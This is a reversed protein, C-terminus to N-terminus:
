TPPTVRLTLGGVTRGPRVVRELVSLNPPHSVGSVYTDASWRVRPLDAAAQGDGLEGNAVHVVVGVQKAVGAALPICWRRLM